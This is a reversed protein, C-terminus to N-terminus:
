EKVGAPPKITSVSEMPPLNQGDVILKGNRLHAVYQDGMQYTLLATGASQMKYTFASRSTQLPNYIVAEGNTADEFTFAASRNAAEWSGVFANARVQGGGASSGGSGSGCAVIGAFAVCALANRLWVNLSM